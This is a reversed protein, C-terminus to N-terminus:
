GHQSVPAITGGAARGDIRERVAEFVGRPVPRGAALGLKVWPKHPGHYDSGGTAILGFRDALRTLQNVTDGDHTSHLTEIGELGQDVLEDILASLQALGHRRLQRPHAASVLGGAARVHEIVADAALPATDVWASGRAGLFRDFAEKITAAYGRRVLLRAVHPRGISGGAAEAEVDALSLDVGLRNLLRVIQEARENRAVGLRDTLRRLALHDLDFGYGLLHMTGPRPFAATVEIGTLFDLGAEAAAAAAEAVGAVTDHDTLAIASLGAEAALRVLDRPCVTGDSATSHTHLDVGLAPEPSPSVTV